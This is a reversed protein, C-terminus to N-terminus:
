CNTINIDLLARQSAQVYDIGSIDKQNPNSNITFVIQLKDNVEFPVPVYSGTNSLNTFREPKQQLLSLIVHLAARGSTKALESSGSLVTVENNVLKAEASPYANVSNTCVNVANVYSVRLADENSFLDIANSTGFIVNALKRLFDLSAPTGNISILKDYDSPLVDDNDNYKAQISESDLSGQTKMQFITNVDQLCIDTSLVIDIDSPGPPREGMIQAVTNISAQQDFQNIYVVANKPKSPQNPKCPVCPNCCNDNPNNLNHNHTSTIRECPANRNSVSGNDSVSPNESEVGLDTNNSNGNNKTTVININGHV